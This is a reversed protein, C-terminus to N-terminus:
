RLWHCLLGTKGNDLEQFWGHIVYFKQISQFIYIACSKEIYKIEALM